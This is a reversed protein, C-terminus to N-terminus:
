RAAEAKEWRALYGKQSLFAAVRDMRQPTSLRALEAVPLEGAM